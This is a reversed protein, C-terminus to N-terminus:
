HANWLERASPELGAENALPFFPNARGHRRQEKRIGRQAEAGLGEQVWAAYGFAIIIALFGIVNIGIALISMIEQWNTPVNQLSM